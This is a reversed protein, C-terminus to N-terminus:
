SLPVLLDIISLAHEMQLVRCSFSMETEGDSNNDWESCRIWTPGALPGRCRHQESVPAERRRRGAGQTWALLSGARQWAPGKPRALELELELELVPM